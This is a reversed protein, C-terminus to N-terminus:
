WLENPTTPHYSPALFVGTGPRGVTQVTQILTPCPGVASGTSESQRQKFM